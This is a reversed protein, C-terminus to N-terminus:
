NEKTYKNEKITLSFNQPIKKGGTSTSFPTTTSDKTMCKRAIKQTRYYVIKEKRNNEIEDKPM